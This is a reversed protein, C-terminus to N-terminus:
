GVESHIQYLEAISSFLGLVSFLLGFAAVGRANPNTDVAIGFASLSCGWLSVEALWIDTTQLTQFPAGNSRTYSSPLESYEIVAVISLIMAAFGFIAGIYGAAATVRGDTVGGTILGMFAATLGLGAGLFGFWDWGVSPYSYGVPQVAITTNTPEIAAYAHEGAETVASTRLHSQGDLISTLRTSQSSTPSTPASPAALAHVIIPIALGVLFGLALSLPAAIGLIVALVTTIAGAALLVPLLYVEFDSTVNGPLVGGGRRTLYSWVAGSSGANFSAQRASLVSTVMHMAPSIVATFAAELAPIIVDNLLTNLAWEMASAVEHLFHAAQTVLPGLGLDDALRVAAGGIYAAAALAVSWVVSVIESAVEAVGSLTNWVDQAFAAWGCPHSPSSHYAPPGYSGSSAISYNALTDYVSSPLDLSGLESTVNVLNNTVAGPGNLVLGGFLDTLEAQSSPLDTGTTGYGNASVNVFLVSQVPRSEAGAEDGPAGPVGGFDAPSTQNMQDTSSFVWIFNPNNLHENPHPVPNVASKESRGSWDAADFTVGSGPSPYVTINTDNLMAQGLLSHLFLSRPVLLNNLGPSLELAHTHSNGAWELGPVTTKTSVNLEILDFDPEGTYRTEGWPLASLTTNNVPTVLFTPAKEPDLTVVHHITLSGLQKRESNAIYHTVASSQSVGTNLLDIRVPDGAMETYQSGNLVGALTGAENAFLNVYLFAYQKATLVPVSVVYSGNYSDNTGGSVSPGWGEYYITDNRSGTRGSELTLNPAVGDYGSPIDSAWWSTLNLRVIEPGLPDSQAGDPVGDHSTSQVLPNAGWSLKGWVTLTYHGADEGVVARLWDSGGITKNSVVSELQKLATRSWLVTSAWPISDGQWGNSDTTSWTLNSPEDSLSVIPLKCPGGIKPTQCVKTFNLTANQYYLHFDKAVKGSPFHPSAIKGLDFTLNWTDLMHSHATDLSNPDLDFEKEVYDRVLGNTAFRNVSATVVASPDANCAQIMAVSANSASCGPLQKAGPMTSNNLPVVWGRAKEADTLGDGTTDKAYTFTLQISPITLLTGANTTYNLLLRASYEAGPDALPLGTQYITSASLVGGVSPESELPVVVNQSANERNFVSLSGSDFVASLHKQVFDSPLEWTFNEGGGTQTISDFPEDARSFASVVYSTDFTFPKGQQVDSLCGSGSSLWAVAYTASYHQLTELGHLPATYLWSGNPQRSANSVVVTTTVGSLAEHYTLFGVDPTTGTQSSYWSVNAATEASEAYAGWSPNWLKPAGAGSGQLTFQCSLATTEARQPGGGVNLSTAGPPNAGGQRSTATVGVAFMDGTPYYSSTAYSGSTAYTSNWWQSAKLNLGQVDTSDNTTMSTGFGVSLSAATKASNYIATVLGTSSGIALTTNFTGSLVLPAIWGQWHGIWTHHTCLYEIEHKVFVHATFTAQWSYERGPVLGYVWLPGVFQSTGKYSGSATHGNNKVSVNMWTTNTYSWTTSDFRTNCPGHLGGGTISVEGSPLQGTVTLDYASASWPSPSVTASASSLNSIAESKGVVSPPVPVGQSRSEEAIANTVFAFPSSGVPVGEAELAWDTYVALYTEPENIGISDALPSSWPSPHLATRCSTEASSLPIHTVEQYLDVGTRNEAACLRDLAMDKAARTVDSSVNELLATEAPPSSGGGGKPFDAPILPDTVSQNVLDLTRNWPLYQGSYELPSTGNHSQTGPWLILPRGLADVAVSPAGAPSVGVGESSPLTAPAVMPMGDPFYVAEDVAGLGLDPDRWSAYVLDTPGVSLAPDLASGNFSGPIYPGQWSTGNDGSSYTLPVTQGTQNSTWLAFLQSGISTLAVQGARGGSYGEETSGITGIASASGVHFKGIATPTSFNGGDSSSSFEVVDSGEVTMALDVTFQVNVSTMTVSADGLRSTGTGIPSVSTVGVIGDAASILVVTVSDALTCAVVAESSTTALSRFVGGIPSGLPSWSSGGTASQYLYTRNASTAAALLLSGIAGVGVSAVPGPYSAITVPSNWAFPLQGCPSACDGGMAISSALSPDYSAVEFSLLEPGTSRNSSRSAMVAGYSSISGPLTAISDETVNPLTTLNAPVPFTAASVAYPYDLSQSTLNAQGSGGGSGSGGTGSAAANPISFSFAMLVTCFIAAV